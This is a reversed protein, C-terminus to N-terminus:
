GDRWSSESGATALSDRPEPKEALMPHYVHANEVEFGGSFNVVGDRLTLDVRAGIETEEFDVLASGTLVSALRGLAFREAELHLTPLGNPFAKPDLDVGDRAQQTVKFVVGRPNFLLEDGHEFHALLGDVAPRGDLRVVDGGDVKRLSWFSFATPEDQLDGRDTEFAGDRAILGLIGCTLALGPNKVPLASRSNLSDAM